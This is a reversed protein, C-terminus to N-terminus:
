WTGQSEAHRVRRLVHSLVQYDGQEEKQRSVGLVQDDAAVIIYGVLGLYVVPTRQLM